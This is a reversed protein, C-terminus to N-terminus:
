LKNVGLAQLKDALLRVESIDDLNSDSGLLGRQIPLPSPGLEVTGVLLLFGPQVHKEPNLTWAIGCSWGLKLQTLEREKTQM